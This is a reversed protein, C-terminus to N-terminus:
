KILYRSALTCLLLGLLTVFNLQSGISASSFMDFDADETTTMPVTNTTQVRRTTITTTTTTTLPLTTESEALTAYSPTEITPLIVVPVFGRGPILISDRGIAKLMSVADINATRHLDFLCYDFYTNNSIGEFEDENILESEVFCRSIAADTQRGCYSSVESNKKTVNFYAHKPCGRCLGESRFSLEGPLQVVVSLANGYQRIIITTNIWVALITIASSNATHKLQLASNSNDPTQGNTLTLPLPLENTAM